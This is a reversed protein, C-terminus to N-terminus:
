HDPSSAAVKSPVALLRPASWIVACAGPLTFFCPFANSISDAATAAACSSSFSLLSPSMLLSCVQRNFLRNVHAVTQPRVSVLDCVLRGSDDLATCMCYSGRTSMWHMIQRDLVVEHWCTCRMLHTVYSQAAVKVSQMGDGAHM